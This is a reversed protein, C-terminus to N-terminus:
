LTNFAKYSPMYHSITRGALRNNISQVADTGKRTVYKVFDAFCTQDKWEVDNSEQKNFLKNGANVIGIYEEHGGSDVGIEVCIRAYRLLVCNMLLRCIRGNGDEFPHICGFYHSYKAATTLADVKRVVGSVGEQNLEEVEENYETVLKEMYYGVAQARVFKSEYIPINELREPTVGPKYKRIQRTRKEFEEDTENRLGWRAGEESTRYVGGIDQHESYKMLIQHASKIIDETLPMELVVLAEVLHHFAEAHQVIEHRGQIVSHVTRSRGLYAAYDLEGAYEGDLEDINEVNVATTGGQFAEKCLRTTVSHPGGVKEIANSGLIVAISDEVLCEVYERAQGPAEPSAILSAPPWKRVCAVRLSKQLALKSTPHPHPPSSTVMVQSQRQTQSTLTPKQAQALFLECVCMKQITDRLCKSHDM